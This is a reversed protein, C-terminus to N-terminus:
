ELTSLMYAAFVSEADDSIHKDLYNGALQRLQLIHPNSEDPVGRSKRAQALDRLQVQSAQYQKFDRTKYHKTPTHTADYSTGADAPGFLNPHAIAANAVERKVETTVDDPDLSVRGPTGAAGKYAEEAHQEEATKKPPNVTNKADATAGEFASKRASTGFQARADEPVDVAYTRLLSEHARLVQAQTAAIVKEADAMNFWTAQRFGSKFQDVDKDTAREGNAKAMGHAIRTALADFRQADTGAFRTGAIPDATSQGSRALDRLETLAASVEDVSAFRERVGARETDSLKLQPNFVHKAQGTEPDFIPVLGAEKAKDAKAADLEKQRMNLSQQEMWANLKAKWKELAQNRLAIANQDSHRYIDILTKSLEKDIEAIAAQGQASALASEYQSMNAIVQQKAGELMFGRVRARAEQDSASQNRQMWWLSKFGEAVEGKTKIAQVQADINRDIAKNFTAMASTNIGRAGLFDHVFATALMGFREGGSMNGWLQSPDVKAARFDALAALYDMKAQQANHSAEANAKTEELAFEDQMRQMVLAERGQAAIKNVEANAQHKAAEAQSGAAGQAAQISPIAGQQAQQSARAMEADVGTEKQTIRNYKEDSGIGRYSAGVGYNGRPAPASPVPAPSYQAGLNTYDSAPDAGSVADPQTPQPLYGAEQGMALLEDDTLTGFYPDFPM